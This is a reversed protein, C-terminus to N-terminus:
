PHPDLEGARAAALFAHVERTTRLRAVRYRDLELPYRQRRARHTRLANPVLADRGVLASRLSERNGNWLEERRLVRRATRRLLRPLWVRIPLDIWVVLDAREFVSDGLKHRYDGDIVWGPRSLVPALREGLVDDPLETWDPGHVLADLEVFPVCLATALARGVTTKGNGSASATVAIRM